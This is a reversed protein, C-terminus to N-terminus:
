TVVGTLYQTACRDHPIYRFAPLFLLRQFLTQSGAFCFKRPVRGLNRCASDCPLSKGCCKWHLVLVYVESGTLIVPLKSFHLLFIFYSFLSVSLSLNWLLNPSLVQTTVPLTSIM